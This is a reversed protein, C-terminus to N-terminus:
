RITLLFPAASTTSRGIELKGFLGRGHPGVATM